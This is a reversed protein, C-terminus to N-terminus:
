AVAVRCSRCSLRPIGTHVRLSLRRCMRRSDAPRFRVVTRVQVNGPTSGVGIIQRLWPSEQMKGDAEAALRVRTDFGHVEVANAIARSHDVHEIMARDGTVLIDEILLSLREFAVVRNRFYQPAQSLGSVVGGLWIADIRPRAGTDNGASWDVVYFRDFRSM